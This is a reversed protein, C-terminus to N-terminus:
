SKYILIILNVFVPLNSVSSLDVDSTPDVLGLHQQRHQEINQIHSPDSIQLIVLRRREHTKGYDTIQARDSVESLKELYAVIQDHRTHYDGIGYELFEEPSPISSEFPAYKAYYYDQSWTSGLFSLILCLSLLKRM